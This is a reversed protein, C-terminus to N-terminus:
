ATAGTPRLFPMLATCNAKGGHRWRDARAARPEAAQRHRQSSRRWSGCRPRGAANCHGVPTTDPSVPWSPLGCHRLCRREISPCPPLRAASPGLAVAGVGPPPSTANREMGKMPSLPFGVQKHSVVAWRMLMGMASSEAHGGRQAGGM